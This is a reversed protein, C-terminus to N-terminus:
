YLNGAFNRNISFIGFSIGVGWLLPSFASILSGEVRDYVYTKEVMHYQGVWSWIFVPLLFCWLCTKQIKNLSTDKESFKLLYALYIGMLYITARHTPLIYSLNAISFMKSIPIGFYVVSTLENTYAIWFRLITSALGTGFLVLFGLKKYNWILYVLLPTIFFLQMDIGLQHTHTLCMNEFGFYNHIFLINRWMYKKCLFAHHNVITPWLPGSGMLPLLYTCFLILALLNPLIRFIRNVLKQKFNMSQRNSLDTLLANANLLGSLLMFSDTYVIANKALITWPKSLKNVTATRNMFPYFFLSVAKHSMLLAVANLARIGDIGRIEIDNEKIKLFKSVNKKLSFAMLLQLIIGNNPVDFFHDLLSSTSVGLIILGFFIRAIYDGTTLNVYEQSKQCMGSRIQAHVGFNAKLSKELDKSSCERPICFGWRIMTFGPIRHAPDEFCERFFNFSHVLNKYESYQKKWLPELDIEALCYQANKVEMCETFDGYQVINGSLIGSPFKATADLMKLANLDNNNVSNLFFDTAKQCEPQSSTTNLLVKLPFDRWISFLKSSELNTSVSFTVCFICYLYIEFM